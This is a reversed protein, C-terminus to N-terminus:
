LMGTIAAEEKYGVEPTPHPPIDHNTGTVSAIELCDVRDDVISGLGVLPGYWLVAPLLGVHRIHLKPTLHLFPYNERSMVLIALQCTDHANLLDLVYGEDSVGVDTRDLPILTYATPQQASKDPLGGM